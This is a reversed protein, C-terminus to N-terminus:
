FGHVTVGLSALGYKKDLRSATIGNYLFPIHGIFNNKFMEGQLFVSVKPHFDYSLKAGFTHNDKIPQNGFNSVRDDINKRWLRQYQYALQSEFKQYRFNWSAGLNTFLADYKLDKDIEFGFEKANGSTTMEDIIFNELICPESLQGTFINNSQVSIDMLCANKKTQLKINKVKVRSYGGSIIANVLNMSDIQHSFIGDFQLQLDQPQIVTINKFNHNNVFTPSAKTVSNAQNGWISMRFAVADKTDLQINPLFQIALMPSHISNAEGSYDIERFWYSGEIKWQPHFQYTATIHTGKYDGTNNQVGESERIDFVDVTDNVLDVGLSISNPSQNKFTKAQLFLDETSAQITPSILSFLFTILLPRKM